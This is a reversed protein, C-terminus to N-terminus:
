NLKWGKRKMQKNIISKLTTDDEVLIEMYTYFDRPFTGMRSIAGYEYFNKGDALGTVICEDIYFARGVGRTMNKMFVRIGDTSISVSYNYNNPDKLGGDEGRREYSAPDYRDYVEEQVSQQMLKAFHNECEKSSLVSYLDKLFQNVIMTNFKKLDQQSAM